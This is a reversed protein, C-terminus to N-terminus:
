QEVKKKSMRVIERKRRALNNLHILEKKIKKRASDIESKVHIIENRMRRISVIEVIVGDTFGSDSVDFAQTPSIWTVFVPVSGVTIIPSVEGGILASVLNIPKTKASGLLVEKVGSKRREITVSAREKDGSFMFATRALNINRSEVLMRVRGSLDFEFARFRDRCKVVIRYHHLVNRYIMAVKRTVAPTGTNGSIWNWATLAARKEVARSSLVENKLRLIEADRKRVTEGLATSKRQLDRIREKLLGGSQQHLFEAIKQELEVSSMSVLNGFAESIEASAEPGTDANRDPHFAAM